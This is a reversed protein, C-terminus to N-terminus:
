FLIVINMLNDLEFYLNSILYEIGYQKDENPDRPAPASGLQCQAPDGPCAALGDLLCLSLCGNVVIPLKSM